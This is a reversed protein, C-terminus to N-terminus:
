KQSRCFPNVIPSRHALLAVGFTRGFIKHFYSDTLVDKYNVLSFDALIGGSSYDFQYFSLMVTLILPAGLLAAFLVLGPASLFWPSRNRVAEAM